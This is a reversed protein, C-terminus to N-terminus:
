KYLRSIKSIMQRPVLTCKKPYNGIEPTLAEVSLISTKRRNMYRKDNVTVKENNGKHRHKPTIFAIGSYRHHINHWHVFELVWGRTKNRTPPSMTNIHGSNAM